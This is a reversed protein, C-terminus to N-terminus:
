KKDSNTTSRNYAVTASGVFNLFSNLKGESYGLPELKGDVSRKQLFTSSVQLASYLVVDFINYTDEKTQPSWYFYSNGKLNNLLETLGSYWGTFQSKNNVDALTSYASYLAQRKSRLRELQKDLQTLDDELEETDKGLSRETKLKAQLKKYEKNVDMEESAVNLVDNLVNQVKNRVVKKATRLVRVFNPYNAFASEVDSWTVKIPNLPLSRLTAVPNRLLKEAEDPSFTEVAKRLALHRLLNFFLPFSVSGSQSAPSTHVNRFNVLKKTGAKSGKKVVGKLEYVFFDTVLAPVEELLEEPTYGVPSTFDGYRTVNFKTVTTPNTVYHLLDHTVGSTWDFFDDGFVPYVKIKFDTYDVSNDTPTVVVHAILQEKLTLYDALSFKEEVHLKKIEKQLASLTAVDYGDSNFFDVVKKVTTATDSNLKSFNLVRTEVATRVSAKGDSYTVLGGRPSHVVQKVFLLYLLLDKLNKPEKPQVGVYRVPTNTGPLGSELLYLLKETYRM